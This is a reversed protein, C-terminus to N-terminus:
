SPSACAMSGGPLVVRFVSGGGDAGSAEIRGRHEHVINRSVALGLGNGQPKTTFFPHFLRERAGPAIGAGRDRVTLCLRGEEVEARLDVAAGPPSAECANVLLNVLVQQMLDPDLPWELDGVASADLRITRERAGPVLSASRAASALLAPVSVARVRAELPRAYHTLRRVTDEIRALQREMDALERALQERPLATRRLAQLMGKVGALPNLTEHAIETAIEGLESLKEAQQLAREQARVRELLAGVHAQLAGIEDGDVDVSDVVGSAGLRLVLQYIPRAAYRSLVFGLILSFVAGLGTLWSIISQERAMIAETRARRDHMDAEALSFLRQSSALLDDLQGASSFYLRKAEDSRGEQQLRVVDDIKAEYALYGARMGDLLARETDSHTFDGMEDIWAQFQRRHPHVLDLFRPDGALLYDSIHSQEQMLTELKTSLRIGQVSRDSLHEAAREAAVLSRHSWWASALVGAIVAAYGLMLRAALSPKMRIPRSLNLRV